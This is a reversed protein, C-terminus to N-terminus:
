DLFREEEIALVAIRGLVRRYVFGIRDCIAKARLHSLNLPNEHWVDDSLYESMM